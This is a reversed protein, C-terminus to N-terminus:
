EYTNIIRCLWNWGIAFVEMQNTKKESPKLQGM